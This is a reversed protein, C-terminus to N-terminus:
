GRQEQAKRKAQEKGGVLRSLPEMRNHCTPCLLEESTKAQVLSIFGRGCEPNSCFRIV